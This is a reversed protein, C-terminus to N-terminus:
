NHEALHGDVTARMVATQPPLCPPNISMATLTAIADTRRAHHWAPWCDGHLWTHTGPEIGFPLVIGSSSEPEGCWACLGELSPAPRENLWASIRADLSADPNRRDLSQGFARQEGCKQRTLTAILDAKAARIRNVLGGPIAKSGARLILRDGVPEITAGIEALEALLERTSKM